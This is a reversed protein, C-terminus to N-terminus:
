LDTETPGDHRTLVYLDTGLEPAARWTTYAATFTDGHSHATANTADTVTRQMRVVSAVADISLSDIQGHIRLADFARAPMNWDAAGVFREDGLSIEQRGVRVYSEGEDLQGYGEHVGTTTGDSGPASEGFNRVDQVRLALHLPGREAILGARARTRVLMTSAGSGPMGAAYTYPRAVLEGRTRVQLEPRLRLADHQLPEESTHEAHETSAPTSPQAKVGVLPPGFPVPTAARAPQAEPTPEPAAVGVAPETPALAPPAAEDQVSAATEDNLAEPATPADLQPPTTAEPATQASVPSCVAALLVCTSWAVRRRDLRHLNANM